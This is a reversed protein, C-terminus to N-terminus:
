RHNKIVDCPAFGHRQVRTCCKFLAPRENEAFIKSESAGLCLVESTPECKLIDKCWVFGFWGTRELRPWSIHSVFSGPNQVELSFRDWKCRDRRTTSHVVRLRYVAPVERVELIRILQVCGRRCIDEVGLDPPCVVLMHRNYIEREQLVLIQLMSVHYMPLEM